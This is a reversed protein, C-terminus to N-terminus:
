TLDITEVGDEDLTVPHRRRKASVFSLEDDDVVEGATSSRERTRERKVGRERKVNQSAADRERQRRLLERMEEPTLTEVDREELPVPSPSRPIILLSQLSAVFIKHDASNGFSM